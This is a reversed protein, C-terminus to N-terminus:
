IGAGAQRKPATALRREGELISATFSTIVQHLGERLISVQEHGSPGGEIDPPPIIELGRLLENAVGIQDEYNGNERGVVKAHECAESLIEDDFVGFKTTQMGPLTGCRAIGHIAHTLGSGTLLSLHESQFLATLWPEIRSRLIAPTILDNNKSWPCLVEQSFKFEPETSSDAQDMFFASHDDRTKIIQRDHKRKM